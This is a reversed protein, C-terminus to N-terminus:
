NLRDQWGPPPRWRGVHGPPRRPPCARGYSPCSGTEGNQATCDPPRYENCCSRMRTAHRVSAIAACTGFVLAGGGTCAAIAAAVAPLAIGGSLIVAVITAGLCGVFTYFAKDACSGSTLSVSSRWEADAGSKCNKFLRCTNAFGGKCGSTDLWRPSRSESARRDITGFAMQAKVETMTTEAETQTLAGQVVLEDMLSRLQTEFQEPTASDEFVRFIRRSFDGVTMLLAVTEKAIGSVPRLSEIASVASTRGMILAWVYPTLAPGTTTDTQIHPDGGARILASMVGDSVGRIAAVHLPTMGVHNQYNPDAGYALLQEVQSYVVPSYGAGYSFSRM